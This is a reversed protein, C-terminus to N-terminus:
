YIFCISLCVFMELHQTVLQGSGAQKAKHPHRYVTSLACLFHANSIGLLFYHERRAASQSASSLCTPPAETQEM